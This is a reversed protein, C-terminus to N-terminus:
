KQPLQKSISQFRITQNQIFGFYPNTDGIETKNIADLKTKIRNFLVQNDAKDLDIVLPTNIRYIKM